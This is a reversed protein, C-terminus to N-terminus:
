KTAWARQGPVLPVIGEYKGPVYDYRLAQTAGAKSTCYGIVVYNKLTVFFPDGEMKRDAKGIWGGFPEDAQEFHRLMAEKETPSCQGFSKGYKREARDALAVLGDMFNNQSKRDTCDRVLKAVIDGVGASKAGPSDTPPIIADALDALLPRYAELLSLPPAKYLHYLKIGGASAIVGGTVLSLRKLVTRRNM